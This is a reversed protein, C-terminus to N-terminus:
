TGRKVRRGKKVELKIIDSIKRCICLAIRSPSVRCCKQGRPVDVCVDCVSETERDADRERDRECERDRDRERMCVERAGTESIVVFM